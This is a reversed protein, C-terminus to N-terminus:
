GLIKLFEKENITKVGLEGAKEYKSGPNEGVIVYTTKKSVSESVSGGLSRIKEKADERELSSLTGTLVFIKGKLPGSKSVTKVRSIRVGADDMRELFELNRKERFWGHISESVKPGIDPLEQLKELTLGGLVQGVDSPEKVDKHLDAVTQALLNATEEGVHLISLSSIFRALPVEKKAQIERVINEASKEGFRELTAIDGEKLTFIDAADAILGEDLFKDLIQPGLGRIDFASRSTLHYLMERHRAGCLKNSCRYIAGDRVVPSGDVPCRAPMKFAKEKGTRLHTLVKTVQPIVDGARSVVVTDGVKLGLREIEDANHLTAHTITIGGVGVPKMVAVPTLAGTRGVQVKIELVVTTAERPSFKYAIAGRPAKGVVGAASFVANSNVIIVTGDIEYDLKERHTAWYERFDMVEKFTRVGKNHPNTNFGLARLMLHEEEHHKQGLDSVIAYQYSNLHRAATVRPDLQRISGAAINRPNAYEKEGRKRQDANVREFEKITIFAEGRVVLHKQVLNFNGPDLGLKRLNKSAEEESSLRLPIADITRLNQTVDEGIFGDGRTAGQVFLGNEYTLEIALGDIKLECYYVPIGKETKEEPDYGLFDKLRLRWDGAEETSFADNFSLMPREHRVKTFSKLLKGGVRQTPSDPTILDPFAEEIRRLEDTLSDYIEDTVSPDDLVHYEYRYKNIEARLKKARAAAQRKDM